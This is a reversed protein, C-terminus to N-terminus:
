LSYTVGCFNRGGSLYAVYAMKDGASSVCLGRFSSSLFRGTQETPVFLAVHSLPRNLQDPPM